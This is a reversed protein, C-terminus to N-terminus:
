HRASQPAERVAERPLPRPDRTAPKSRSPFSVHIDRRDFERKLLVNLRRTVVWQKAPAVKVRALLVMAAEGLSDIGHLEPDDLILKAFDPDKRLKAATDRVAQQAEEIDSDYSIAVKVVAYSYNRTLNSVTTVESFPITHVTGDFDRLRLARLSIGEVVGDKGGVNVVDGVAITDEVLVSVGGLVDKVLQQAGLGVAVGVIGAGAILPAINIGIESLVIMGAMVLLVVLSVHRMLPLLTRRRQARRMGEITTEDTRIARAALLNISEWIAIGTAGVLALSVLSSAVRGGGAQTLWSVAPIRWAEAIALAAGISILGTAISSATTVYAHLRASFGPADRRLPSWRRELLSQGRHLAWVSAAAVAAVALSAATARIVLAIGDAGQVLWVALAIVLYGILATQWFQGRKHRKFQGIAPLKAAGWNLEEGSHAILVILLAAAILGLIATVTDFAWDPLGAASAAATLFYGYIAVTAVARSTRYLRHRTNEEVPLVGAEPEVPRLLARPVVLIFGTVAQANAVAVALLATMSDPRLAAVMGMATIWFVASPFLGIAADGAVTAARRWTFQALTVRKLTIRTLDPAAERRWRKSLRAAGAQLLAALGLIAAIRAVSLLYRDREVPNRITDEAWRMLRPMDGVAGAAQHLATGIERMSEGLMVLFRSAPRDIGAPAPSQAPATQVPPQEVTRLADILRQRVAENQLADILRDTEIRAGPAAPGTDQAAVPATLVALALMAPAAHRFLRYIPSFWVTM